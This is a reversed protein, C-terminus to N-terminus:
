DLNYNQYKLACEFSLFSIQIVTSVKIESIIRVQVCCSIVIDPIKTRVQLNGYREVQEVVPASLNM